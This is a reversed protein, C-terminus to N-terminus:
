HMSLRRRRRLPLAIGALAILTCAAAPEPVAVLPTALASTPFPSGQAPFNSDIIFYDDGNISGDYNFDGNFWGTAGAPFASDIQFYDDGNVVGDLNADGGYTYMVLVDSASVSVGGFVGGAYGTEGATAVGISTLSSATAASQTTVIGSAGNWTGDGLGKAILGAVGTYASGNWSGKSMATLVLKNDGVDVKASNAISISGTKLTKNAGPTLKL